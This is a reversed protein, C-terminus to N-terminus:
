GAANNSMTIVLIILDWAEFCVSLQHSIVIVKTGEQWIMENNKRSRKLAKLIPGRHDCFAILLNLGTAVCLSSSLKPTCGQSSPLLFQGWECSLKAALVMRSLLPAVVKSTKIGGWHIPYPCLTATSPHSPLPFCFIHQILFPNLRSKHEELAATYDSLISPCLALVDCLAWAVRSFIGFEQPRTGM